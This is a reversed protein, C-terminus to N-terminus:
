RAVERVQILVTSLDATTRPWGTLTLRRQRAARRLRHRRLPDTLWRRLASALADVDDPRVLLGPTSGDGARGLAEPVGGVAGAVVPLGHALAETVVMGYSEARSALVLVDAEAYAKGVEERSCAGAFRVREALGLGAVQGRVAEVFGPDRDLPGVLTLRWDLDQVQALAAVLVDHGKGATVTAVCLLEGGGATGAVPDVMDVGPQAVVVLDDPLRYHELLWERTWRSTTVVASATELLRREGMTDFPMHVLVVLRLRASEPCLVDGAASGVLGDVLVLDGDPVDSVVERLRDLDSPEPHPWSGPAALDHVDWGLGTLGDRVRHDYINGGTPRTPDDIGVPVVFWVAPHQSGSPATV